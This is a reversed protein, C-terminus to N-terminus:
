ERGVLCQKALEKADSDDKPVSSAAALQESVHKDDAKCNFCVQFCMDKANALISALKSMTAREETAYVNANGSNQAFTYESEKTGLWVEKNDNNIEKCEM